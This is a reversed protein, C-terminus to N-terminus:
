DDTFHTATLQQKHKRLSSDFFCKRVCRTRWVHPSGTSHVVHVMCWVRLLLIVFHKTLTLFLFRQQFSRTLNLLTWHTQWGFWSTHMHFVEKQWEVSLWYKVCSFVQGKILVNLFKPQKQRFLRAVLDHSNTRSQGNILNDQMGTCNPNFSYTIFLSPKGGHRVYTIADQAYEHMVNQQTSWWHLGLNIAFNGVKWSWGCQWWQCGCWKLPYVWRCM